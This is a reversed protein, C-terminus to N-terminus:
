QSEIMAGGCGCTPPGIDRLWVGTMRIICGCNVCMVKRMRSGKSGRKPVTLGPHPYEGLSESLRVLDRKLAQSATTATMPPLLGVELAVKRFAKKHGCETGVSAHILEHLIIDLVQVPDTITPIIFIHSREKDGSVKESWCQGITTSGKGGRSGKPFGVSILPAKFKQGEAASEVWPQMHRCAQNLWEERNASV